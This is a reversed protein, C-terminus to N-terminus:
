RSYGDPYIHYLLARGASCHVATVSARRAAARAGYYAPCVTSPRGPLFQSQGTYETSDDSLRCQLLCLWLQIGRKSYPMHGGSGM